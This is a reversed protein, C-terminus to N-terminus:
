ALEKLFQALLDTAVKGVAPNWLPVWLPVSKVGVDGDTAKNLARQQFRRPRMAENVDFEDTVKRVSRLSEVLRACSRAIEGLVNGLLDCIIAVDVPQVAIVYRM